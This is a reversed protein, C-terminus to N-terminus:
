GRTAREVFARVKEAEERARDMNLLSTRAKEATEHDFDSRTSIVGLADEISEDLSKNSSLIEGAPSDHLSIVFWEGAVKKIQHDVPLREDKM